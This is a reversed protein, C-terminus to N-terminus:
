SSGRRRSSLSVRVRTICVGSQLYLSICRSVSVALSICRSVALYLCREPPRKSNREVAAERVARTVERGGRSKEVGGRCALSSDSSVIHVSTSRLSLDRMQLSPETETMPRRWISIHLTARGMCGEEAAPARATGLAHSGRRLKWVRRPVRRRSREGRGGGPVRAQDVRDVMDLAVQAFAEIRHVGEEAM